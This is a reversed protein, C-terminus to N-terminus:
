TKPTQNGDSDSSERVGDTDPTRSTSQSKSRTKSQKAILKDLKKKYRRIMQERTEVKEKKATSASGTVQANKKKTKSTPEDDESASEDSLHADDSTQLLARSAREEPGLSSMMLLRCTSLSLAGVSPSM